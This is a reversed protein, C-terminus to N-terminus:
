YNSAGQINREHGAKSRVYDLSTMGASLMLVDLSQLEAKAKNVFALASSWDEMDLEWVDVRADPNVQLVTPDAKLDKAAQLGRTTSRVALVLHSVGFQLYQRSTELGLGASAGTVIVTKGALSQLSCLLCINSRKSQPTSLSPLRRVTEVPTPPLIPQFPM